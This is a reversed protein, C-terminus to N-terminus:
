RDMWGDVWGGDKRGGMGVNMWGTVWGEMWADMCGGMCGAKQRDGEWGDVVSGDMREGMWVDVWQEVLKM